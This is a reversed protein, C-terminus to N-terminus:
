SAPTPAGTATGPDTGTDTAPALSTLQTIVSNFNSGDEASIRQGNLFVVPTSRVAEKSAADNSRSVFGSFKKEDMAARLLKEDAGASVAIDILDDVDPKDQDAEDPQADFIADHVARGVEPGSADLSAWFVQAARDSYGDNLYHFPRYEVSAAGSEAASALADRTAGELQACAPCLFDEYIVVKAAADAPGIRLGYQGTAGAPDASNKKDVSQKVFWGGVAVVVLVIVGVLLLNARKQKKQEAVRRAEAAAKDHAKADARKERATRTSPVNGSRTPKKKQPKTAM